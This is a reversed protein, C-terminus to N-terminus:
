SKRGLYTTSLVVGCDMLVAKAQTHADRHSQAQEISISRNGGDRLRCHVKYSGPRYQTHTKESSM